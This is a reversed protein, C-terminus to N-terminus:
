EVWRAEVGAQVAEQVLQTMELLTGGDVAEGNETLLQHVDRVLEETSEQHFAAKRRKDHLEDDDLYVDEWNPDPMHQEPHVSGTNHDQDGWPKVRDGKKSSITGGEKGVVGKVSTNTLQSTDTANGKPPHKQAM